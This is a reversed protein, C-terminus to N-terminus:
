RRSRAVIGEGLTQLAQKLNEDEIDVIKETVWASEEASPKLESQKPTASHPTFPTPSLILKEVLVYGFFNNIAGLILPADHTALLKQGASVQLHLAGSASGKPWTIKEPVSQTDYPQPVIVSWQALIETSAFGRKHLVPDMVKGILQDIPVSKNWRKPKAKAM